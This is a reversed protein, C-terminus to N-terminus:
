REVYSKRNWLGLEPSDQQLDLQRGSEWRLINLKEWNWNGVALNNYNLINQRLTEHM